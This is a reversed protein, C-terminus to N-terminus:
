RARAAATVIAQLAAHIAQFEGPANALFDASASKVIANFAVVAAQVQGPSPNTLLNTIHKMLVDIDQASAGSAQLAALVAARAESTSSGAMMNYVNAQAAASIPAGTIVNTLSGAQLQARVTNAAARIARAVGASVPVSATGANSPVFIGGAIGSGTTIVGGNDSANVQAAAMPAVALLAIVALSVSKM